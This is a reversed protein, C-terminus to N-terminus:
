RRRDAPIMIPYGNEYEALMAVLHMGKYATYEKELYDTIEHVQTLEEPVPVMEETYYKGTDKFIIVKIEKM